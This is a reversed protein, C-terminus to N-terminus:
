VDHVEKHNNANPMNQAHEEAILTGPSEIPPATQKDMSKNFKNQAATTFSLPALAQTM